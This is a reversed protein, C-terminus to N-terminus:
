REECLVADSYQQERCVGDVGRGALSEGTWWGYMCVGPRGGRGSAKRRTKERRTEVTERREVTEASCAKCIADRAESELECEVRRLDIGELRGHSAFRGSAEDERRESCM